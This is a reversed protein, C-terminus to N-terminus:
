NIIRTIGKGINQENFNILLGLRKGSLRLYNLLQAKHIPQVQDTSKFDVVLCDDVLMDLIFYEDDYVIGDYVIPIKIQTKVNFGRSRLEKVMFREYTKEPLGVGLRKHITLGFGCYM